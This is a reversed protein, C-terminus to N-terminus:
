EKKGEKREEKRGEKRREKKKNQQQQKLKKNTTTTKLEMGIVFNRSAEKLRTGELCCHVSYVGDCCNLHCIVDCSM